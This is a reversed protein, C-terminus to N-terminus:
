FQFHSVDGDHCEHAKSDDIRTGKERDGGLQAGLDPYHDCWYIVMITVLIVLVKVLIM